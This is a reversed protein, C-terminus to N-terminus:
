TLLNAAVGLLSEYDKPKKMFLEVAWDKDYNEEYSGKGKFNLDCFLGYEVM